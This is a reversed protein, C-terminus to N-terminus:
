TFSSPWPWVELLFNASITLEFGLSLKELLM